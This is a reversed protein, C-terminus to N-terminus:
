AGDEPRGPPTGTSKDDPKKPADKPQLASLAARVASRHKADTSDANYKPAASIGRHGFAPLPIQWVRDLYLEMDKAQMSAVHTMALLSSPIHNDCLGAFIDFATWGRACGYAPDFRNFWTVILVYCVIVCGDLCAVCTFLFQFRLDRWVALADAEAARPASLDYILVGDVFACGAAVADQGPCRTFGFITWSRSEPPLSFGHLVGSAVSMAADGCVRAAVWVRLVCSDLTRVPKGFAYAGPRYM